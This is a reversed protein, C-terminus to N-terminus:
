KTIERITLKISGLPDVIAGVIVLIILTALDRALYPRKYQLRYIGLAM